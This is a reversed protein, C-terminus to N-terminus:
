QALESFWLFVARPAPRLEAREGGGGCQNGSILGHGVKGLNMVIKDML